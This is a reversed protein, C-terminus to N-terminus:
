KSQCASLAFEVVTTDLQGKATISRATISVSEGTQVNVANHSTLTSTETDVDRVDESCSFVVASSTSFTCVLNELSIESKVSSDWRNASQVIKAKYHGATSPTLTFTAGNNNVFHANAPQVCQIGGSNAVASLSSFAVLATLLTNM